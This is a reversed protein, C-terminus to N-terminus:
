FPLDEGNAPAAPAAEDTVAMNGAEDINVTVKEVTVVAELPLKASALNAEYESDHFSVADPFGELKATVRHREATEFPTEVLVKLSSNYSEGMRIRVKGLVIETIHKDTYIFEVGPIGTERATKVTSLKM